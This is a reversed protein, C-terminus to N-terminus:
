ITECLAVQDIDVGSKPCVYAAGNGTIKPVIKIKRISGVSTDFQTTIEDIEGIDMNQEIEFQQIGTEGLVSIVFGSIKTQGQNEVTFRISNSHYCIESVDNIAVIDLGSETCSKTEQQSAITTRGWNMVIIGLLVAFSILLITSILPTIGRNNM